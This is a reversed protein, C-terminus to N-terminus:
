FLDFVLASWPGRCGRKVPVVAVKRFIVPLVRARVAPDPEVGARTQEPTTDPLAPPKIIWPGNIM